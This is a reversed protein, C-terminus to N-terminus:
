KKKRRQLAKQAILGILMLCAFAAAIQTENRPIVPHCFGRGVQRNWLGFRVIPRGFSNEIHSPRCRNDLAGQSSQAVFAFLVASALTSGFASVALKRRLNKICSGLSTFM